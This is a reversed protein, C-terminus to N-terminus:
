KRRKRFANGALGTLGIGLLLMTSPEPVPNNGGEIIDNACTMTWRLGFNDESLGMDFTDISFNLYDDTDPGGYNSINWSGFALATLDTTDYQVEQGPRVTSPNGGSPAPATDWPHIIRNPDVAFLSTIGTFTGGAVDPNHDMTLVYEWNEGNSDVDRGHLPAGYPRWGNNSIFLDGLQTGSAGINDLYTTYINVSLSSPSAIDVVMKSVEFESASGIRDTIGNYINGDFESGGIYQDNILVTAQANVAWFALSIISCVAIKKQMTM